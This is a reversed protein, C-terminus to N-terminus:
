GGVLRRAQEGAGGSGLLYGYAKSEVLLERLLQGKVQQLPTALTAPPTACRAPHPLSALQRQGSRAPSPTGHVALGIWAREAPRVQVSGGLADAALMYYQLALAPDTYLFEKGYRHILGGVDAGRGGAGARALAPLASPLHSARCCAAAAALPPAPCLCCPALCALVSAGADAASTDLVRYHHLCIALHAADLRYDRTAAEKALFAM